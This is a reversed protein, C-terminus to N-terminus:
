RPPLGTVPRLAHSLQPEGHHGSMEALTRELTFVLKREEALARDTSGRFLSALDRVIKYAGAQDNREHHALAAEKISTFEEVLLRGRVLGPGAKDGPVVTLDVRDRKRGGGVEEYALSVRAAADGTRVRKGPLVLPGDSALAIYIAGKRRSLFITAVELRIAGEDGWELAEGPIGYVGAIELGPGPKVELTLDYALETVMTDLEECFVRRMEAVDPFFFLNGGRVSSIRTALEAGFHTAVGITTLGVGKQSGQEAMEMFSGADTRGVNPREDTFLMVRTTGSFRRGSRRAVEFGLELGAELYTSGSSQLSNIARTIRARRSMPTPPLVQEVEDSYRVIALQDGNRLQSVVQLLSERVTDLPAGSMSGSTDVVAVLNLPPRRFTRETLGSAFGLQALVRVDQQVLLRALIAQGTVCLLERCAKAPLPLDHESFLGEPTITNPHPVAGGQVQDRFWGIDQAGGPTAGFSEAAMSPMVLDGDFSFASSLPDSALPDDEDDDKEGAWALATAALVAL